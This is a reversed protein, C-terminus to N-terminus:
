DRTGSWAAIAAREEDTMQTMNGLPMYKSHVVTKVQEAHLVTNDITRSQVGPAYGWVARLLDERMADADDYRREPQKAM